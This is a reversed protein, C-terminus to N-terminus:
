NFRFSVGARIVTSSPDFEDASRGLSGLDLQASGYDYRLAELRVSISPLVMVEAGVGYVIGQFGTARSVSAGAQSITIEVDSWAYGATAYFLAPGLPIGLRARATGFASVEGTLTAGPGVIGIGFEASNIGLDAEVGIMVLGLSFNLGVHGGYAATQSDFSLGGSTKVDTWDAGGHIGAYIGTWIPSLLGRATAPEALVLSAPVLLSAIAASRAPNHRSSTRSRRVPQSM